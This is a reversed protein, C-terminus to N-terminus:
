SLSSTAESQFTWWIKISQCVWGHHTCTFYRPQWPGQQLEAMLGGGAWRLQGPVAPLEWIFPVERRAPSSRSARVGARGGAERGQGVPSKPAHHPQALRPPSYVSLSPLFPLPSHNFLSLSPISPMSRCVQLSRGAQVPGQYCSTVLTDLLCLISWLLQLQMKCSIVLCFPIM